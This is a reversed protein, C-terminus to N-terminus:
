GERASDGGQVADVHLCLGEVSIVYVKTGKRVPHLATAKWIEGQIMVRGEPAIEEFVVGIEGVMGESGTLPPSKQARFAKSVAFLFFGATLLLAPVIVALSVNMSAGGRTRFLMLSGLLLSLVGGISLAGHSPVKVEVIFLIVALLILLVGALNIPLSQFAYLALILSIGGIVGPLIVGPNSLEFFIGLIGALFLLYAISPNVIVSLLRDRLTMRYEHLPVGATRVTEEGASTLVARGDIRELLTSLDPALLDVVGQRIAEDADLSVSERVAREVWDANRGRSVAISRAYSAADNEVKSGMTSDAQGIGGIGVPHAAGINTGPAMAAIHAAITIFMGASAARAGPPGVWVVVPVRSGLIAKTAQRMSADLGGPTDLSLVVAPSSRREASKIGEVIYRATVPTIADEVELHLVPAPTAQSITAMGVLLALLVPLLPVRRGPSRFRGDGFLESPDIKMGSPPHVRGGDSELVEQDRGASGKPDSSGLNPGPVPAAVM